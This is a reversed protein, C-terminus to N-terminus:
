DYKYRIVDSEAYLTHISIMLIDFVIIIPMTVRQM